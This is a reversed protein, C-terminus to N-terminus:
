KFPTSGQRKILATMGDTIHQFAQAARRSSHRARLFGHPLGDLIHLTVDVGSAILKEAYQPSDSLLPDCGAGIIVAPPVTSLDTATMPLTETDWPAPANLYIVWYYATQETTLMPAHAHDIYSGQDMRGGLMPYILVQGALQNGFELALMASLYGGASDGAIIVPKTTSKLINALVARCDDLAAPALHEPALRYDIATLEFGTASVLGLTVDDHTDLDGAVFGGGHAYVIHADAGGEPLYHRTPVSGYVADTVAINDPRGPHFHNCLNTFSQRQDDITLGERHEPYFSTSTKIFAKIDDDLLNDYDM